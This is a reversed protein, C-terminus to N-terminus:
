PSALFESIVSIDINEFHEGAKQFFLNKKVEDKELSYLFDVFWNKFSNIIANVHVAVLGPYGLRKISEELDRQQAAGWAYSICRVNKNESLDSKPTLTHLVGCRAAYLELATCPLPYKKLMWTEVWVQFRERVHQSDDDSAIWSISDIASYILVLAPMVLKETICYDIATIIQSYCRFFNEEKSM